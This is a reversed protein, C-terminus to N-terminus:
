KENKLSELEEQALNSLFRYQPIEKIELQVDQVDPERLHPVLPLPYAPFDLPLSEARVQGSRVDIRILENSWLWLGALSPLLM